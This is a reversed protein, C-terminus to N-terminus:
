YLDKWLVIICRTNSPPRGIPRLQTTIASAATTRPVFSNHARERTPPPDGLKPPDFHLNNRAKRISPLLCNSRYIGSIYRGCSHIDKCRFDMRSVFWQHHRRRAYDIGRRSRVQTCIRCAVRVSFDRVANSIRM